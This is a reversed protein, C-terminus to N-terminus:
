LRPIDEEAAPAEVGPVSLVTQEPRAPGVLFFDYTGKDLTLTGSSKLESEDKPSM